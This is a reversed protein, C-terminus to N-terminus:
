RESGSVTKKPKPRTQKAKTAGSVRPTQEALQSKLEAHERRINRLDIEILLQQGELRELTRHLEQLGTEMWFAETSLGAQRGKDAHFHREVAQLRQELEATAVLAAQLEQLMFRLQERLRDMENASTRDSTPPRKDAAPTSVHDPQMPGDAVPTAGKVVSSARGFANRESIAQGASAQEAHIQVVALPEEDDADPDLFYGFIGLLIMWALGATLAGRVTLPTLGLRSLLRRWFRTPPRASHCNKWRTVGIAAVAGGPQKPSQVPCHASFEKELVCIEHILRHGPGYSSLVIEPGILRTNLGYASMLANDAIINILRPIGGSLHFIETLAEPTFIDTESGAVHLRHTIYQATETQTLPQLTSCQPITRRFARTELLHREMENQGAFVIHVAFRGEHRISSIIRILKLLGGNLRHADDLILVARRDSQADTHALHRLCRFFAQRSTVSTEFEFAGEVLKFFDLESLCPDSIKAFRFPPSLLQTISDLLLSKGTGPEGLLFVVGRDELIAKQLDAYAAAHSAGLWLFAPDADLEFPKVTFRYHDLYM